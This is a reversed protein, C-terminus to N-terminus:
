VPFHHACSTELRFKKGILFAYNSYLTREGEGSNWDFGVFWEFDGFDESVNQIIKHVSTNVLNIIHMENSAYFLRRNVRM